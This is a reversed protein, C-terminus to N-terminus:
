VNKIEMIWSSKLHQQPFRHTEYELGEVMPGFISEHSGLSSEILFCIGNHNLHEKIGKFFKKHWQWDPDLWAEERLELEEFWEVRHPFWPPNAIIFDYSEDINDWVDSEFVKTKNELGCSELNNKCNEIQEPIIDTFHCTSIVNKLLLGAGLVGWGCCMDLGQISHTFDNRFNFKSKLSKSVMDCIELNRDLRTPDYPYIDTTFINDLNFTNDM